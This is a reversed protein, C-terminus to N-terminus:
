QYQPGDVEEQMDCLVRLDHEGLGVLIFRIANQHIPAVHKSSWIGRPDIRNVPDAHGYLYKHMGSASDCVWVLNEQHPEAVQSPAEAAFTSSFDPSGGVRNEPRLTTWGPVCFPGALLLCMFLHFVRTIM